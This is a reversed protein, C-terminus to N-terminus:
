RRRMLERYSALLQEGVHEVEFRRVADRGRDGLVRRLQPDDALRRIHEAGVDPRDPAFTLAGRVLGLVESLGPISTGVVPLGAAMGEMAVRCWSEQLSPVLLVDMQRYAEDPDDVVGGWVVRDAIGASTLRRLSADTYPGTTPSDIGFILWRVDDGVLREAIQVLLHLGKRPSPSGM